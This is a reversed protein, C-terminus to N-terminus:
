KESKQLYEDINDLVYTQWYELVVSDMYDQPSKGGERKRQVADPFDPKSLLSIEPEGRMRKNNNLHAITRNLITILNIYNQENLIFSSKDSADFTFEFKGNTLFKPISNYDVSIISYEYIARTAWAAGGEFLCFQSNLFNKSALFLIDTNHDVIMGKIIESLPLLNEISVGDSSYFIDTATLNETDFKFGLNKLYHAVFDTFIRDKNAHSIFLRYSTKLEIDGKLKNGIVLTLDNVQSEPLKAEIM